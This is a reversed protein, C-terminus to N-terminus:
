KTLEREKPEERDGKPGGVKLQLQFRDIPSGVKVSCSSAVTM